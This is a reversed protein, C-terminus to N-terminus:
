PATSVPSIAASATSRTVAALKLCPLPGLYDSAPCCRVGDEAGVQEQSGGGFLSSLLRSGFSPGGPGDPKPEPETPPANSPVDSPPATVVIPRELSWGLATAQPPAHCPLTLATSSSVNRRSLPMLLM